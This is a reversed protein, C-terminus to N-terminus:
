VHIKRLTRGRLSYHGDGTNHQQIFNSHMVSISFSCIIEIFVNMNAKSILKPELKQSQQLKKQNLEIPSFSINTERVILSKLVRWFCCFINDSTSLRQKVTFHVTQLRHKHPFLPLNVRKRTKIWWQYGHLATATIDTGQKVKCCFHTFFFKKLSFTIKRSVSCSELSM